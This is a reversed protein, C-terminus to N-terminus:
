AKLTRHTRKFDCNVCWNAAGTAHGDNGMRVRQKAAGHVVLHHLRQRSGKNLAAPRRHPKVKPAHTATNAAV